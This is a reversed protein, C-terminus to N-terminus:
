SAIYLTASLSRRMTSLAGCSRALMKWEKLMKRKSGVKRSPFIKAIEGFKAEWNTAASISRVPQVFTDILVEGTLYDLAFIRSVDSGLDNDIGTDVLEGSLVVARFKPHRYDHAPTPHLLFSTLGEVGLQIQSPYKNQILTAESHSKSALTFLASAQQGEPLISWAYSTYDDDKLLSLGIASPNEPPAANLYQGTRHDCSRSHLKRGERTVFWWTCEKFLCPIAPHSTNEAHQELDAPRSFSKECVRCSYPKDDTPLPLIWHGNARAHALLSVRDVFSRRCTNCRHESPQPDTRLSPIWHSELRAHVLLALRDAFSRGCAECPHAPLSQPKAPLAPRKVPLAPSQSALHNKAGAHDLLSRRSTFRRRCTACTYGSRPKADTPLYLIWHGKNRSHDLLAGQSDFCKGCTDCGSALTELSSDHSNAGAEAPTSIFSHGMRRAHKWLETPSAFSMGCTGCRNAPKELGTKPPPISSDRQYQYCTHQSLAEGGSVCKVNSGCMRCMHWVIRARFGPNMKKKTTSSTDKGIEDIEEHKRKSREM